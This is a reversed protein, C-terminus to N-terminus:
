ANKGFVYRSGASIDVPDCISMGFDRVSFKTPNERAAAASPM